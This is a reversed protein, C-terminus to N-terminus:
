ANPVSELAHIKAVRRAHRGGEFPAAVFARVIEEALGVGVVRAGLALVNADNHARALRATFLDNCTAARVGAIKNASIAVGIGSGCVLVGLVARGAAVAHGVAAAYDPYDVSDASGTGLDEVSHGSDRLLEALHAKLEYGAHDAGVAIKM